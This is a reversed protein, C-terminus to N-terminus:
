EDEGRTELTMGSDYDALSGFITDGLMSGHLYEFLAIIRDEDTEGPWELMPESVDPLAVLVDYLRLAVEPDYEHSEKTELILLHRDGGEALVDAAAAKLGEPADDMNLVDVANKERENM